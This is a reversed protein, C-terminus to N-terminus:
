KQPPSLRGGVPRADRRRCSFFTSICERIHLNRPIYQRRRIPLQHFLARPCDGREKSKASWNLYLLFLVPPEFTGLGNEYNKCQCSSFAAAAAASRIRVISVFYSLITCFSSSVFSPWLMWCLSLKKKFLSFPFRSFDNGVIVREIKKQAVRTNYYVSKRKMFVLQRSFKFRCM